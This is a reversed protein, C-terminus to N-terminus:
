AGYDKGKNNKMQNIEEKLRRNEEQMEAMKSFFLKNLKTEEENKEDDTKMSLRLMRYSQIATANWCRGSTAMEFLTASLKKCAEQAGERYDKYYKGTPQLIDDQNIFPDNLQREMTKASCGVRALCKILEGAKPDYPAKQKM